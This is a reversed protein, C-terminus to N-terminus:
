TMWQGVEVKIYNSINDMSLKILVKMGHSIFSLFQSPYFHSSRALLFFITIFTDNHM